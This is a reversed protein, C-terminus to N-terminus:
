PEPCCYPDPLRNPEDVPNDRPPLTVVRRVAGLDDREDALGAEDSLM